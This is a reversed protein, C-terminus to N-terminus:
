KLLIMKKESTFKDGLSLRYIYIGSTLVEANFEKEYSGAEMQQNLLIAVEQGLSNYVTLNVM